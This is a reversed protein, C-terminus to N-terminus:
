WVSTVAADRSLVSASATEVSQTVSPAVQCQEGTTVGALQHCLTSPLISSTVRLYM